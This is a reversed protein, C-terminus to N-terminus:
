RISLCDVVYNFMFLLCRCCPYVINFTTTLLMHLYCCVTADDTLSNVIWCHIDTTVEAPFLVGLARDEDVHGVEMSRVGVLLRWRVVVDPLGSAGRHRVYILGPDILCLACRVLWVIWRSM